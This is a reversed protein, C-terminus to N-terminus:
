AHAALMVLVALLLAAGAGYWRVLGLFLRWTRTREDMAALVASDGSQDM